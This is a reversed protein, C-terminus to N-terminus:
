LVCNLTCCNITNSIVGKKSYWYRNKKRLILQQRLQWTIAIFMDDCKKKGDHKFHCLVSLVMAISKPYKVARADRFIGPTWKALMSELM